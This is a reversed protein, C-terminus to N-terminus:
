YWFSPCKLEAVRMSQKMDQWMYVTLESKSESVEFGEKHNKDTLPPSAQKSYSGEQLIWIHKIEASPQSNEKRNNQYVASNIAGNNHGLAALCCEVAELNKQQYSVAKKFRM